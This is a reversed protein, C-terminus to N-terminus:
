VVIISDEETFDHRECHSQPSAVKNEIERMVEIVHPEARAFIEPDIAIRLREARQEDRAVLFLEDTGAALSALLPWDVSIHFPGGSRQYPSSLDANGYRRENADVRFELSLEDDVDRNRGDIQWIHWMVNAYGNNIDFQQSSDMYWAATIWPNQYSGDGADWKVYGEPGDGDRIRMTVEVLGFSGAKQSSCVFGLKSRVHTNEDQGSHACSAVLLGTAVVIWHKVGVARSTSTM